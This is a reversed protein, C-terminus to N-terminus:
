KNKWFELKLSDYYEVLEEGLVDEPKPSTRGLKKRVDHLGQIGYADDNEPSPNSLNEFYHGSYYELECFEYVKKLTEEPSNVIEEYDIFCLHEKQTEYGIKLSKWPVSIYNEWLLRCRTQNNVPKNTNMLERDIYTIKKSKNIISVFSALVESIRRTTCIIKPTTQFTSQIYSGYKAWSRHKELVIPEKIHQYCGSIIGREINSYQEPHTNTQFTSVQKWTPKTTLLLDLLPSTPTTHINPNQSILTAFVTSGSRPVGSLFYFQKM